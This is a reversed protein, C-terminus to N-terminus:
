PASAVQQPRQLADYAALVRRVAAKESATIARDQTYKGTYRLRASNAHAVTRLMRLEADTVDADYWEWVGGEGNDREVAFHGGPTVAFQEGDALIQFNEVFLWDEGSYRLLLRLYPAGGGDAKGIYAQFANSNAYKPYSHDRYWTVHQFDDHEKSLAALTRRDAEARHALDAQRVRRGEAKWEAMGPTGDKGYRLVLMITSEREAEPINRIEGVPIRHFAAMARTEMVTKQAPDVASTTSGGGSAPGDGSGAALVAFAVFAAFSLAHRTTAM